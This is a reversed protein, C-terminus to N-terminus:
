RTAIMVVVWLIVAVLFVLAIVLAWVQILYITRLRDLADMLLAIDRGTTDSVQRFRAGASWTLVGVAIMLASQILLVLANPPNQLLALLLIAGFGASAAGAIKMLRALSSILMEQPASFEFPAPRNPVPPVASPERAAYPDNMANESPQWLFFAFHV